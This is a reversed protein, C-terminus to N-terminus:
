PKKIADYALRFVGLLRPPLLEVKRAVAVSARDLELWESRSRNRRLCVMWCGPLKSRRVEVGLRPLNLSNRVAKALRQELIGGRPGRLAAMPMLGSSRM